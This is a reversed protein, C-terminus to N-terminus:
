TEFDQFSTVCWLVAFFSEQAEPEAKNEIEVKLKKFPQSLAGGTRPPDGPSEKTSADDAKRKLLLPTRSLGPPRASPACAATTDPVVNEKYAAQQESQKEERKAKDEASPLLSARNSLLPKVFASRRM